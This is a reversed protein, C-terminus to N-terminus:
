AGEEGDLPRGTAGNGIPRGCRVCVTEPEVDMRTGREGRTLCTPHVYDLGISICTVLSRAWDIVTNPDAGDLGTLVGSRREYLDARAADREAIERRRREPIRPSRSRM